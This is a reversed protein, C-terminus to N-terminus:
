LIARATINQRTQTRAPQQKEPAPAIQPQQEEPAVMERRELEQAVVTENAAVSEEVSMGPGTEAWRHFGRYIRENERIDVAEEPGCQAKVIAAKLCLGKRSREDPAREAEAKLLEVYDRARVRAADAAPPVTHTPARGVTRADYEAWQYDLEQKKLLNRQRELKNREIRVRMERARNRKEMARCDRDYADSEEQLLAILDVMATDDPDFRRATKDALGRKVFATNVEPGFSEALLKENNLDCGQMRHRVQAFRVRAASETKGEGNLRIVEKELETIFDDDYYDISSKRREEAAEQERGERTRRVAAWLSEEAERSAPTDPAASMTEDPQAALASLEAEAEALRARILPIREAKQRAIQLKEERQLLLSVDGSRIVNDLSSGCLKAVATAYRLRQEESADPHMLAYRRVIERGPLRANPNDAAIGAGTENTM